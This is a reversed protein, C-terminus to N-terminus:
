IIIKIVTEERETIQSLAESKLEPMDLDTIVLDTQNKDIFKLADNPNQFIGIIRIGPDSAILTSVGDLIIKHDDLLILKIM